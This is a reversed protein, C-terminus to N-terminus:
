KNKQGYVLLTFTGAKVNPRRQGAALPEFDATVLFLRHNRPDIAMTRAGHQTLINDEVQFTDNKEKVVTLTGDGNSSLACNIASDYCVADAGAGIPLSAIVKGEKTSIVEMIKNGCVAFLYGDKEDIALGTPENGEKLKIRSTQKWTTSDVVAIESTDEVNVYVHGLDAAAFELKGGLPISKLIKLSVPDLVMMDKSKGNMILVMKSHADFIIADPNEGAKIEAIKKLSTLDFATVSNDRGNSIFGKGLEPVLAIGHAGTAPIDGLHNGNYADIVMVSKGHSLFLRNRNSDYTLYDWGGDGGLTYKHEQIFSHKETQSFAFSTYLLSVTLIGIIRKM